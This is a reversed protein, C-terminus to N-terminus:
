ADNFVGRVKYYLESSTSLDDSMSFGMADMGRLVIPGGFKQPIDIFYHLGIIDGTTNYDTVLRTAHTSWDRSNTVPRELTIELSSPDTSGDNTFLYLEIGNALGGPGGGYNLVNMAVEEMLHISVEYIHMEQDPNDPQIIFTTANAGSWDQAALIDTPDNIDTFFREFARLNENVKIYM